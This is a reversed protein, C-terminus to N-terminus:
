HLNEGMETFVQHAETLPFILSRVLLKILKRISIRLQTPVDVTPFPFDVIPTSSNSIAHEPLAQGQRGMAPWTLGHGAVGHCAM